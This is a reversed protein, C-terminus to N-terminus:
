QLPTGCEPCFKQGVQHEAGCKPCRNGAAVATPSGCEPCFKAGDQIDAGCSPCQATLKAGCNSCFKTGKPNLTQCSKCMVQGESIRKGGTVGVTASQGGSLIFREIVEFIEQPLKKQKFAGIAATVALPAFLLGGVAGAGIKDSWKGFGATVNIVDAAQFIQVSIAQDMGSIKKWGDSEQKGQIFYGETTLGAQTEMGKTDRLFSEVAEGIMEVTVDNLLKFVKSEAM